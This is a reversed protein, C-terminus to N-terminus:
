FEGGATLLFFVTSNKQRPLLFFASRVLLEQWACAAPINNGPLLYFIPDACVLLFPM